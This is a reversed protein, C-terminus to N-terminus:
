RCKNQLVEYFMKKEPSEPFFSSILPLFRTQGKHPPLYLKQRYITPNNENSPPGLLISNDKKRVHRPHDQLPKGLEDESCLHVLIMGKIFHTNNYHVSYDRTPLHYPCDSKFYQFLLSHINTLFLMKIKSFYPSLITKM